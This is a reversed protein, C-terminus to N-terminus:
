SSPPNDAVADRDIALPGTTVVRVTIGIVWRTGPRAAVARVMAGSASPADFRTMGGEAGAWLASASSVSMSMGVKM